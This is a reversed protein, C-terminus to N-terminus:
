GSTEHTYRKAGGESLSTHTANVSGGAVTPLMLQIGLIHPLLGMLYTSRDGHLSSSRLACYSLTGLDEQRTPAPAPLDRVKESDGARM